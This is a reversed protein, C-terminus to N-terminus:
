SCAPHELSCLGLNAWLVCACPIHALKHEKETLLLDPGSEWKTQLGGYMNIATYTVNSLNVKAHKALGVIKSQEM